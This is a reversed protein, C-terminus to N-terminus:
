ILIYLLHNSSNNKEYIEIIKNDKKKNQNKKINITQNNSKLFFQLAKKKSSTNLNYKNNMFKVVFIKNSNQKKKSGGHLPKVDFSGINDYKTNEIHQQQINNISASTQATPTGPTITVVNKNVINSCNSNAPKVDYAPSLIINSM